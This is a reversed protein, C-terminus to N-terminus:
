NEAPTSKPVIATVVPWVVNLLPNHIKLYADTSAALGPPIPNDTLIVQDISSTLQKPNWLSRKHEQQFRETLAHVGQEGIGNRSLDLCRLQIMQQSSMVAELGASTVRNGSMGLYSVLGLVPLFSLFGEDGLNCDALELNRLSFNVAECQGMWSIMSCCGNPGLDNKSLDLTRLNPSMSVLTKLPEKSKGTFGCSALSLEVLGISLNDSIAALGIDGIPNHSLRMVQLEQMEAERHKMYDDVSSHDFGMDEIHVILVRSQQIALGLRAIAEREIRNGSLNLEVLSACSRTLDGLADCAAASSFDNYALGLSSLNKSVAAGGCLEVVGESCLRNRNIALKRLSPHDRLLGALPAAAEHDIGCNELELAQLQQCKLAAAVVVEAGDAGIANNSLCLFELSTSGLRELSRCGLAGLGITDARLSRFRRFRAVGGVLLDFGQDGMEPNFSIDLNEVGPDDAMSRDEVAFSTQRSSRASGALDAVAEEELVEDQSLPEWCCALMRATEPTFGNSQLILTPVQRSFKPRKRWRLARVLATICKMDIGNESLDVVDCENGLVILCLIVKKSFHNIGQLMQKFQATEPKQSGELINAFNLASAYWSTELFTPKKLRRWVKRPDFELSAITMQELSQCSVAALIFQALLTDERPSAHRRDDDFHDIILHRLTTTHRLVHIEEKIEGESFDWFSLNWVDSEEGWGNIVNIAEELFREPVHKATAGIVILKKRMGDDADGLVKSLEIGEDVLEVAADWRSLKVNLFAANHCAVVLYFKEAEAPLPHKSFLSYMMALAELGWRLGMEDHDIDGLVASLNLLTLAQLLPHLDDARRVAIEKAETLADVATQYFKVRRAACALVSLLTIRLLDFDADPDQMIRAESSRTAPDAAKCLKMAIRAERGDLYALAMKCHFLVISRHKHKFDADFQSIGLEVHRLSEIQENLKDVFSQPWTRNYMDTQFYLQNSFREDGVHIPSFYMIDYLLDDPVESREVKM